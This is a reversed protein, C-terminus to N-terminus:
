AASYHTVQNGSTVQTDDKQYHVFVSSSKSSIDKKLYNRYTENIGMPDPIWICHYLKTIM